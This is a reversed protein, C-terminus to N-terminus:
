QVRKGARLQESHTATDCRAARGARGHRDLAPKVQDVLGGAAPGAPKLSERLLRVSGFGSDPRALILAPDSRGPAPGCYSANSISTPGALRTSCARACRWNCNISAM